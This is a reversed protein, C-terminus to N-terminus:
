VAATRIVAALHRDPNLRHLVDLTAHQYGLRDAVSTTVSRYAFGGPLVLMQGVVAQQAALTCYVREGAHFGALEYPDLPFPLVRQGNVALMALVRPQAEFRAKAGDPTLVRRFRPNHGAQHETPRGPHFSEWERARPTGAAVLTKWAQWRQQAQWGAAGALGQASGPTQTRRRRRHRRGLPPRCDM